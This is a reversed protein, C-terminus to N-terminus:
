ISLKQIKAIGGGGNISNSSFVDFEKPYRKYYTAHSGLLHVVFLSPKDSKEKAEALPKLLNEDFRAIDFKDTKNLFTINKARNFISVHAVAFVGVNEQNSFVYSDYDLLSFLDIFNLSKYWLAKNEMNAFTLALSLSDSTSVKASIVNDFLFTNEPSQELRKSLLPTSNLEYGYSQLYSRQASEGVVVVVNKIHKKPKTPPNLNKLNDAVEKLVANSQKYDKVAAITHFANNFSNYANYLVDSWREDAPRLRFIHIFVMAILALVFVSNLLRKNVSLPKLKLYLFAFLVLLALCILLLPMSLYNPLFEVSERSNTDLAFSFLYSSLNSKFNYLLFINVLFAILSLVLVLGLLFNQILRLRLHYIIFFLLGYSLIFFSERYAFSYFWYSDFYKGYDYFMSFTICISNMIFLLVFVRFFRIDKFLFSM